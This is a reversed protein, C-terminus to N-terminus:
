PALAAYREANCATAVWGWVDFGLLFAGQPIAFRTQAAAPSAVLCLSLALARM